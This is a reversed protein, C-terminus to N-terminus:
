RKNKLAILANIGIVMGVPWLVGAFVGIIWVDTIDSVVDLLIGAVFLALGIILKRCM